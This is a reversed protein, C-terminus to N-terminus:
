NMMLINVMELYVMPGKGANRVMKLPNNQSVRALMAVGEAQYAERGPSIEVDDLNINQEVQNGNDDVDIFSFVHESHSLEHFLVGEPCDGMIDDLHKGIMDNLSLARYDSLYRLDDGSDSQSGSDSNSDSGLWKEFMFPCILMWDSVAGTTPHLMAAFVDEDDCIGSEEGFSMVVERNNSDLNNRYFKYDNESREYIFHEDTCFITPAYTGSFAFDSIIKDTRRIVDVVQDIRDINGSVECSDTYDFDGYFMKFTNM